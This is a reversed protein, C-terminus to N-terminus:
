NQIRFIVAARITDPKSINNNGYYCIPTYVPAQVASAGYLWIFIYATMSITLNETILKFDEHCLINLM